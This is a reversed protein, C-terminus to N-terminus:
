STPNLARLTGDLSVSWTGPEATWRQGDWRARNYPDLVLCTAPAFRRAFLAMRAPDDLRLRKTAHPLAVVNQFVGLGLDLVEANGPGEPPRDHFLVVRETLVMAGGSWALVPKQGFGATVDLLRMRNLLTSVHGGAVAVADCQELLELVEARRKALEPREGPRAEDEFAAHAEAIRQLHWADLVRVVQLADEIEADLLEPPEKRQQLARLADLAYDLRLAYLDRVQRLRDMRARHMRFLEPDAEFVAEVRKHLRLNVARRGLAEHLEDDEAEREQWGATITAIRRPHGLRAIEDTVTIARRQPGLLIGITQLPPDPL